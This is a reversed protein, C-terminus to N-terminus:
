KTAPAGSYKKASFLFFCLCCVAFVIGVPYGVAANNKFFPILGM